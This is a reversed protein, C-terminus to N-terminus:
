DALNRSYATASAKAHALPLVEFRGVESSQMPQIASSFTYNASNLGFYVAAGLGSVLTDHLFFENQEDVTKAARRVAGPLLKRLQQTLIGLKDAIRHLSRRICWRPQRISVTAGLRRRLESSRSRFGNGTRIGINGEDGVTLTSKDRAVINGFPDVAVLRQPYAAQQGEGRRM